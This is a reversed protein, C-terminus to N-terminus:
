PAEVSPDEWVRIWAKMEPFRPLAREGEMCPMGTLGMWALLPVGPWHGDRYIGALHDGGGQYGDNHFVLEPDIGCAIAAAYSWAMAAIEEGQDPGANVSVKARASPPMVAVHGAEHLMDGPYKLRTRDIALGGNKMLIGPLFTEEEITEETVPIGISNLFASITDTAATPTM